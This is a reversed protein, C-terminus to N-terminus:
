SSSAKKRSKLTDIEDQMRRFREVIWLHNMPLNKAGAHGCITYNLKEAEDYERCLDAPVDESKGFLAHSYAARSHENM